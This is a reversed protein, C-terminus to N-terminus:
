CKKLLLKPDPGVKAIIGSGFQELEVGSYCCYPWQVKCKFLRDFWINFREMANTKDDQLSESNQRSKQVAFTCVCGCVWVCVWMCVYVGV